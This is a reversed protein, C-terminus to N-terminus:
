QRARRHGDVFVQIPADRNAKAGVHDAAVRGGPLIVLDASAPVFLATSFGPGHFGPFVALRNGVAGVTGQFDRLAPIGM